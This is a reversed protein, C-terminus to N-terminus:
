LNLYHRCGKKKNGSKEITVVRKMDKTNVPSGYGAFTPIARGQKTKPISKDIFYNRNM